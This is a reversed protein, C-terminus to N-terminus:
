VVDLRVEDGPLMHLEPLLGIVDLGDLCSRVAVDATDTGVNVATEFCWRTCKGAFGKATSVTKRATRHTDRVLGVAQCSTRPVSSVARRAVFSLGLSLQVAMGLRWLTLHLEVFTFASNEDCCFFLVALWHSLACHRELKRLITKVAGLVDSLLM